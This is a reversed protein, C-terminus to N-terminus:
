QDELELLGFIGADIWGRNKDEGEVVVSGIFHEREPSRDNDCYALAFGMQKGASLSKPINEAHIDFHNGDYIRMAVEWTSLPGNTTRRTVCHDNLYVFSSDPAIDVVKGDLAIHYAFANYSYQHNGGSADEDIFIELCDDDWYHDLGDPHGDYLSDDIIEALVYLNNEDWALKYRGSFDAPSLNEGIWVQDLPLWKASRWVEDDSRGDILPTGKVATFQQRHQATDSQTGSPAESQGLFIFLLTAAAAALGIYTNRDM